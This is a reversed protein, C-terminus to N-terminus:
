KRFLTHGALEGGPVFGERYEGAAVVLEHVHHGGREADPAVEEAAPDLQVVEDVDLAPQAGLVAEVARLADPGARVHELVGPQLGILDDGGGLGAHRAARAPDAQYGAAATRRVLVDVPNGARDRRELLAVRVDLDAGAKPQQGVALRLAERRRARR